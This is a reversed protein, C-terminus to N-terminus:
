PRLARTMVLIPFPVPGMVLQREAVVTFGAREYFTRANLVSWCELRDVGAARAQRECAALVARGVGRRAVDPRTAFHRLYGLGPVVEPSGPREATWGGCGVVDDGRLAVHYRGHTLLAPNPRTMFPLAARLTAADYAGALLAPYAARLVSGIADLDAPGAARVVM